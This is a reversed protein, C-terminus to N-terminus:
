LQVGRLGSPENTADAIIGCKESKAMTENRILRLIKNEMGESDSESFHATVRYNTSGIRRRLHFQGTRTQEM